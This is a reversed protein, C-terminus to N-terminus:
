IAVIVYIRQISIDNSIYSSFAFNYLRIFVLMIIDFKYIFCILFLGYISIINLNNIMILIRVIELLLGCLVVMFIILILM